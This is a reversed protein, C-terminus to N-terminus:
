VMNVTGASATTGIGSPTGGARALGYSARAAEIAATKQKVM